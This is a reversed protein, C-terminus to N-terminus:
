TATDDEATAPTEPRTETLPQAGSEPGLLVALWRTDPRSDLAIKATITLPVSLLMGVPGLVWGWFLLSLFVVLTSLGLGKGMFRPEVINGMLLNVALYGGAALLAKTLGMQIMALLVAPVAAIISGINPVYNLMFALVGWLLPFDVGLIALWIAIIIGTALSVWTKLAMYQKVHTLFNDWRALSPEPTGKIAQLKVPFSAAELLMFIVTMLILFGNTLMNGLGNLVSAALKMAAGPDFIETLALPSTDIGLRTLIAIASTTQAKIKTQYVPLDQTFQNISQGALAAIIIGIGLMSLVVLSMAPVAPIGKRQLWFMPPASIIAIFASLLFPVLIITAAKMGAIIVVCAAATLM